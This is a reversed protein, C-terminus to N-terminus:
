SRRLWDWDPPLPPSDPRSFLYGQACRVGARALSELEDINEVGEAVLVIGTKDTFRRITAILEQKFSDLHMNRVLAMDVKLYDPRMEAITQLGSYGSGVDDMALQFGMSRIENLALRMAAYDRVATHETVEFVVREPELGAEAIRRAFGSDRLEPDFLSDPETNLFLYEDAELPPLSELARIRCLRELPWLVGERHAAKFLLDPSPFLDIPPRTLAEYGIVRRAVVDVVPQYVTRVKESELIRRLHLAQLRAERKQQNLADAISEELARYIIRDPAVGPELHMISGGVYVGFRENTRHPLTRHLHANVGVM